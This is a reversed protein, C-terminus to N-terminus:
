NSDLRLERDSSAELSFAGSSIKASATHPSGAALYLCMMGWPEAFRVKSAKIIGALKKQLANRSSQFQPSAIVTRLDSKGIFSRMSQVEVGADAMGNAWQSIVYVDGILLEVRVDDSGLGVLPGLAPLPGLSLARPWVDDQTIKMRFQDNSSNAPDISARMAQRGIELFYDKARLNGNTDFFMADCDKDAFSTRLVCTSRGETDLRAKAELRQQPTLLDLNACWRLYQEITAASTKQNVAFHVQECNLNSLSVAGGARYTTTALVSDFMAKRLAEHRDLPDSLASITNGSVTEKITVDGSAEDTLVESQRVLDAFSAFNLIGLLNLNLKVGRDRTAALLSKNLTIGDALSGGPQQNKELATLMRLDGHLARNVAAISASNLLAPRIEYQFAAGDENDASLILDLSVKLHHDIGSRIASILTATESASLGAFSSADATPNKSIAGIIASLLDQDNFEATFGGSASADVRYAANKDRTITLEITEADVRRIRVQYDCSLTFGISVGAAVGAQISITGAGLPLAASALPNPSAAVEISGSVHLSGNGSITAIDGVGLLGLDAVTAPITYQSLTDSLASLLTPEAAGLPFRKYYQLTVNSSQSFGFALDGASASADFEFTGNFELGVYATSAPVLYPPPFADHDFLASGPSANVSIDFKASPAVIIAPPADGIKFGHQASAQFQIPQTAAKSLIEEKRELFDPLVALHLAESELYHLLSSPHHLDIAPRAVTNDTQDTISIDPM